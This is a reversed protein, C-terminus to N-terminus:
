SFDKRLLQIISDGQVGLYEVKHMFAAKIRSIIQVLEQCAVDLVGILRNVQLSPSKSRM